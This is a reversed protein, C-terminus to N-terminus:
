KGAKVKHKVVDKAVKVLERPDTIARFSDAGHAFEAIKEPSEAFSKAMTESGLFVVSVYCGQKRLRKIAEDSQPEGFAGDTLLFVLKTKALSNTMIRETELLALTPVTGGGAEVIPIETASARVDRSMLNRATETFTMVSVSGNIKEIARKIIWASRCASGIESWMSGSRDILVSAEIDYDDNGDQWRDFLKDIQNIDANMARKVNLKGSPKEREWAPDSDIRLRELEQAFLRVSTAEGTTPAFTKSRSNTLTTKTSKDRLVSNVTDKVKRQLSKDAKAREVDKKFAEVVDSHTVNFDATESNIEGTDSDGTGGSRNFEGFEDELSQGQADSAQGNKLLQDQEKESLPRGNRMIERGSCDNPNTPVKPLGTADTPLLAILQEILEQGRTYQRPYVLTRYENTIAYISKTFKLGNKEISLEASLKRAELSLYKRGAVLIFTDALTDIDTVLYDAMLAVMFPRTSPYKLTLYHEARCDELINFAFQRAKDQTAWKGLATGVRPTFLLHSLEHYNLGHLSLITSDDVDKILNGGFVINKGDNYAPSESDESIFVDVSLGTLIRDARQYISVVSDLTNNRALLSNQVEAKKSEMSDHFNKRLGYYNDSQRRRVAEITEGTARAIRQVANTGFDYSSEAINNEAVWKTWEAHHDIDWDNYRTKSVKAM